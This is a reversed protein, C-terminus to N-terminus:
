NLRRRLYRSLSEIVVVVILIFFLIVVTKDYQFRQMTRNLLTGIGGAGVYGLIAAYRINIEFSYLSISYYGPLIQPLVATIFSKSKSAGTSQLAEFAGLDITEIKEYLMKAVISFTFLTLAITGALAGWGLVKTFISAYILVPITRFVSLIIRTSVLMFKNKIINSSALFAVPLAFSAGLFSGLLSIQITEFIPDIVERWYDLDPPWMRELVYFPQEIRQFLVILSFGTVQSAYYIVIALAIFIYPAVPKPPTVIEGGDITIDGPIFIGKFGKLFKILIDKLKILFKYSKDIINKV